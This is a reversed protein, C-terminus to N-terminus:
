AEFPTLVARREPLRSESDLELVRMAAKEGAARRAQRVAEALRRRRLARPDPALGPQDHAPPGFADVRLSLSEAPAPLAHLRPSLALLLRAREATATRLAVESRWTGGEVFRAAVTLSRITRGRRESRALLRDVLLELARELQFGSAADPLRLEESVSEVPLRPRLPTDRGRALDLAVLGPRGFRDAVSSAPLRALDGLTELGLRRLVEPLEAVESRHRLLGVPLSALFPRVMAPGVVVTPRRRRHELAAALAAFRCPAAGLRIRQGLVHRTKSLVGPLGHHIAELDDAEFFASGPRECEVEAGISELASLAREWLRRTGEPDPPVLRLEPCRAMAEGLRMGAGVGFAEAAASVQGVRQAGGPEPALAAPVGLLSTREGVAARLALRPYLACVVM